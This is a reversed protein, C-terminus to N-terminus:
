ILMNKKKKKVETSIIMVETKDVNMRLDKEERKSKLVTLIIYM